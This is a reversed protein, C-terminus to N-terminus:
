ARDRKIKRLALKSLNGVSAMAMFMPMLHGASHLEALAGPELNRVKEEDVLHYGVLRQKGGDGCDVDMSFPELLEYRQLAACFDVSQRYGADLDGLAAAIEELFPTPRGEDDFLRVGEDSRSVRPHDLDIHVQAPGDGDAPLGILFPQIAQALPKCASDWGGDRLFLNEGSELGFLALASFLGTSQDRRFLIPFEIALRRFEPPVAISAMVADGLEPSAGTLVRLDRHAHKDLAVHSSM